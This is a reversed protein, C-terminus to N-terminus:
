RATTAYNVYTVDNPRFASQMSGTYAYDARLMGNYGNGLPHNYTASASATWDTTNPIRDGVVGPLNATTGAPVAPQDQTLHADTYGVSGTLVLGKAPRATIDVEAGRIRASGANSQYKKTFDATYQSVQMNSWEVDFVAANFLLKNHLWGSKFGLEYNWLSDAAYSVLNAALGPILNAGGPRFGKSATAYAMIDHTFNYNINFKEIWGNANTSASSYPVASFNGMYAAGIGPYSQAGSTTKQYDYYRAGATILLGRFPKIGLEGFGAVQREDTEMAIPFPISRFIPAGTAKDATEV